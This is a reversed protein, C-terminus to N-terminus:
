RRDILTAPVGLGVASRLTERGWIDRIRHELHVVETRSRTLERRTAVAAFGCRYVLAPPPGLTSIARTATVAIRTTRFPKKTAASNASTFSRGPRRLSTAPWSLRSDLVVWHSNVRMSRENDAHWSPMVIADRPRPQTPSGAIARSRSGHSWETPIVEVVTSWVVENVIANLTIV